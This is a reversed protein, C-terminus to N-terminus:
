FLEHECPDDGIDPFDTADFLAAVGMDDDIRVVIDAGDIDARGDGARANAQGHGVLAAALAATLRSWSSENVFGLVEDSGVDRRDVPRGPISEDDSRFLRM